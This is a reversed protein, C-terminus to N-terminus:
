ELKSLAEEITLEYNLLLYGSADRYAVGIPVLSRNFEGLQESYNKVSFFCDYHNMYNTYAEAAYVLGCEKGIELMQKVCPTPM